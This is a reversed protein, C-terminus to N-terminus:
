PTHQPKVGNWECLKLYDRLGYNLTPSIRQEEDIAFLYFGDPGYELVYALTQGRSFHRLSEGFHLAKPIKM